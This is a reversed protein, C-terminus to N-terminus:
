KSCDWYPHSPIGTANCRWLDRFLVFEVHGDLLGANNGRNGHIKAECANFYGNNYTWGAYDVPGVSTDISPSSSDFHYNPDAPDYVFLSTGEIFAMGDSPKRIQTIKVPPRVVGASPIGYVFPAIVPNDNAAFSVCIWSSWQSWVGGWKGISSNGGPCARIVNTIINDSYTGGTTHALYPALYSPWYTTTTPLTANEAFYPVAESFDDEYMALGLEWNKMNSACSTQKARDKARGLVPLLMSALIGIIAIVVLLEILTFGTRKNNSQGQPNIKMNKRDDEV